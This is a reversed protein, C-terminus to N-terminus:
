HEECAHALLPIRAQVRAVGNLAVRLRRELHVAHHLRGGVEDPRAVNHAHLLRRVGGVAAAGLHQLDGDGVLLAQRLLAAIGLRACAGGDLQARPTQLLLSLIGLQAVDDLHVEVTLERTLVVQQRKRREREREREREGGPEIGVDTTCISATSVGM